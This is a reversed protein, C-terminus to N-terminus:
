RVEMGDKGIVEKEGHSCDDPLGCHECEDYTGHCSWWHQCTRRQIEDQSFYKYKKGGQLHNLDRVGQKTMKDSM